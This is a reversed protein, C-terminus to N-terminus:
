FSCLAYLKASLTLPLLSVEFHVGREKMDKYVNNDDLIHYGHGIREAHMEHVAETVSAACGNEGAHAICHLGAEYARQFADKIRKDTNKGDCPKDDGAVDVAVVGNKRNALALDVVKESWEPNQRMMCLIARWQLNHQHAATEMSKLVTETAEEVTLNDGAFFFPCFRPEVYCHGGRKVCDEVFDVTIQHLAEKDGRIPQLIDNFKTLFSCLSNPETVRLHKAFGEGNSCPFSIGKKQAFRFITEPRWGGDFHLHLEVEKRPTDFM